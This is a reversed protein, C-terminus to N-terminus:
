SGDKRYTHQAFTHGYPLTGCDCRLPNEPPQGPQSSPPVLEPLDHLEHPGSIWCAPRTCVRRKDALKRPLHIGNAHDCGPSCFSLEGPRLYGVGGLIKDTAPGAARNEPVPPLPTTMGPTPDAPPDQAAAWEQFRRELRESMRPYLPPADEPDRSSPVGLGADGWSTRWRTREAEQQALTERLAAEVRAQQNEEREAQAIRAIEELYRSCARLYSWVPGTLVSATTALLIIVGLNNWALQM